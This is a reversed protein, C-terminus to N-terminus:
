GQFASNDIDKSSNAVPSCIQEDLGEQSSSKFTEKLLAIILNLINLQSSEIASFTTSLMLDMCVRLTGPRFPKWFCGKRVQTAKWHLQYTKKAYIERADSLATHLGWDKSELRGM